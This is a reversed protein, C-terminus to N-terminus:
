RRRSPASSSRCRAQVELAIREAESRSVGTIESSNNISVDIGDPFQNYDVIPTAVLQGDVVIAQPM